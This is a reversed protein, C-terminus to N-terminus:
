CPGAKTPGVHVICPRRWVDPERTETHCDVHPKEAWSVFGYGLHRGEM